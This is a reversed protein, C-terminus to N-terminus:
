DAEFHVADRVRGGVRGRLHVAERVLRDCEGHRELPVEVEPELDALHPAAAFRHQASVRVRVRVRIRVKVSVRARVRARVRAQVRVSIRVRVRVRVRVV